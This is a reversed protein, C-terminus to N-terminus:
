AWRFCLVVCSLEAESAELVVDKDKKLEKSAFRLASGNRKM